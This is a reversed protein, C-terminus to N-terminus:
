DKVVVMSKKATLMKYVVEVDENHLRICGMSSMKGISAPDITGHIGYSQAGVAQGDTGELGLWYPGLPNKPDSPDLVGGAHGEPPFYAPHTVKDKIIWTGTPTSNNTGLGVPFTTIYTSDPGGPSGLYVDLTFKSKTVVVHFPGEIVKLTQGYRLKRANTMQNIMLLFEFPVNHSNGIAALRDNARVQYIGGLPDKPFAKPSFVLTQNIEAMQKKVADSDNSSLSGTVMADNLTKRASLLDGSDELTKARALLDSTPPLEVSSALKVPAPTPKPTVTNTNSILKTPSPPTTATAMMSPPTFPAPLPKTPDPTETILPKPATVVAVAPPAPPKVSAIVPASQLPKTVIATTKNRTRRFEVAAAIAIALVVITVVVRSARTHSLRAM